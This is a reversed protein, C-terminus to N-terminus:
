ITESRVNKFAKKINKISDFEEDNALAQLRWRAYPPKVQAFVSEIPQFDPMYKVNLVIKFGLEDYMDMVNDKTHVALNDMFLYVNENRLKRRLQKLFIIYTENNIAKKDIFLHEVKNDTSIATIVSHYGSYIDKQNVTINAGKNSYANTLLTTKTFNVEDLFVIKWGTNKVKAM